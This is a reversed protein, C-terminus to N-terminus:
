IVHLHLGIDGSSFSRVICNTRQHAKSVIESIYRTSSLDSAITVGLDRCHTVTPLVNGSRTFDADAAIIIKLVSCKDVSVSLQWDNAWDAILDLATQLKSVDLDNKIILYIKVDDAFLKAIIGHHELLVFAAHQQSIIELHISLHFYLKKIIHFLHFFKCNLDKTECKSDIQQQPHLM